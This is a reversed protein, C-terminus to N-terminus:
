RLMVNLTLLLMVFLHDTRTDDKMEPTVTTEYSSHGLSVSSVFVLREDEERKRMRLSIYSLFLCECSM